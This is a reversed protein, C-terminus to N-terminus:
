LKSRVRARGKARERAEAARQEAKIFRSRGRDVAMDVKSRSGKDGHSKIVDLRHREALREPQTLFDAVEKPLRQADRLIEEAPRMFDSITLRGMEAERFGRYGESRTVGLVGEAMIEWHQVGSPMTSERNFYDRVAHEIAVSKDEVDMKM